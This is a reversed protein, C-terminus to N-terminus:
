KAKDKHFKHLLFFFTLLNKVTFQSEFETFGITCLQENFQLALLHRKFISFFYQPKIKSSNVSKELFKKSKLYEGYQFFPSLQQHTGHSISVSSNKLIEIRPKRTTVVQYNGGFFHTFRGSV